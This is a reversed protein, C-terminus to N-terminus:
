RRAGKEEGGRDIHFMMNADKEAEHMVGNLKAECLESQAAMHQALSLAVRAEDCLDMQELEAHLVPRAGLSAEEFYLEAATNLAGVAANGEKATRELRSQWVIQDIMGKPEQAALGDMDMKKTLLERYQKDMENHAELLTNTSAHKNDLLFGAFGEVGDYLASLQKSTVPLQMLMTHVQKKNGNLHADIIGEYGGTNEARPVAHADLQADIAAAVLACMAVNSFRHLELLEDFPADHVDPVQIELQENVFRCFESHDDIWHIEEASLEGNTQADLTKAPEEPIRDTDIHAYADYEGQRALTDDIMQDYTLHLQELYQQAQQCFLESAVLATRTRNDGHGRSKVARQDRRSGMDFASRVDKVSEDELAVDLAEALSELLNDMDALAQKAQNAGELADGLRAILRERQVPNQPIPKNVVEYARKLDRMGEELAERTQEFHGNPWSRIPIYKHDEVHPNRQADREAHLTLEAPSPFYQAVMRLKWLPTAGWEKELRDMASQLQAFHKPRNQPERSGKYRADSVLPYDGALIANIDNSPFDSDSLLRELVGTEALAGAMRASYCLREHWMEHPTEVADMRAEHAKQLLEFRRSHGPILDRLKSIPIEKRADSDADFVLNGGKMTLPSQVFDLADLKAIDVKQTVEAM